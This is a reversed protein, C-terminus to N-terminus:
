QLHITSPRLRFGALLRRLRRKRGSWTPIIVTGYQYLTIPFIVSVYTSRYAVLIRGLRM